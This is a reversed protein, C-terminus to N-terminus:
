FNLDSYYEGAAIKELAVRVEPIMDEPLADIRGWRLGSCKHPETNTPEGQWQKVEFFLDIREHKGDRDSADAQRHMTHVLTLVERKLAIGVEEQAERAAALVAPEDGDVHGAPLSYKGDMYGTNARQLLLVEDNRRFLVYVAPVVQFRRALSTMAEKQAPTDEIDVM